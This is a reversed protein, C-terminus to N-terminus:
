ADPTDPRRQSRLRTPLVEPKGIRVCRDIFGVYPVPVKSSMEPTWMREVLVHRAIQFRTDKDLSSWWPRMALEEETPANHIPDSHDFPESYLQGRLDAAFARALPERAFRKRPDLSDGVVQLHGIEHLLTSYLLKRRVAWPPWQGRDAAGFQEARDGDFMFRRLSLRPPLFGCLTIDRRGGRTVYGLRRVSAHEGTVTVAGLRDLLEPPIRRLVISIDANGIYRFHWNTM